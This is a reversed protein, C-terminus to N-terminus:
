DKSCLIKMKLNILEDIVADIEEILQKKNEIEQWAQKSEKNGWKINFEKFLVFLKNLFCHCVRISKSIEQRLVLLEQDRQPM